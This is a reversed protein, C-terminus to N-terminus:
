GPNVAGGNDWVNGSWVNGPASKNFDTISFWYGCNGSTQWPESHEFVNNTFKVNNAGGSYPKGGSSGGYACAGGTSAKFLNNDIINNQVPGFDGYGTLDASCGADPPVDPADCLITNHRLTTNESMRIGSEHYVGSSDRFQGHVYSDRIVCDHWCYISRNGGTVHVRVATFNVSGIGTGPQNGADVNSDSITFSYGTSNDETAVSGTIKSRSITVHAARILLDCNITKADIVTGPTTITCPGTYASLSTGAPVGTNSANPFAGSSAAPSSTTGTPSPSSTTTTPPSTTTTPAPAPASTTTPASPSPASSTSPAAPSPSTTTPATSGTSTTSGTDPAFLVDVFYNSSRWTDSPMTSGYSYVGKWATLDKTVKPSTPKLAYTDDAYRGKPATYSAVYKTSASISVPTSLRAVQWGSGTENSFTVQSLLKGGATWLQGTHTGTNKASKYFRIGTVKGSVGSSFEVGLTTKATDPDAPTKPTASDSWISYSTDSGTAKLAAPQQTAHIATVGVLTAAAALSLVTRASRSSRGRTTRAPTAVHRTPTAVHRPAQHKM